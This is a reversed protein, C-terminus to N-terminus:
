EATDAEQSSSRAAMRTEKKLKSHAGGTVSRDSEGNLAENEMGGAEITGGEVKESSSVPKPDKKKKAKAQAGTVPRGKKGEDLYKEFDSNNRLFSRFVHQFVDEQTYEASAEGKRRLEKNLNDVLKNFDQADAEYVQISFDIAKSRPRLDM